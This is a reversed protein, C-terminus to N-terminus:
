EIDKIASGPTALRARHLCRQMRNQQLRNWEADVLLGLREEFGMQSYIGPGSLQRELEAAMATFRMAKLAEMSSQVMM